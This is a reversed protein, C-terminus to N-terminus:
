AESSCTRRARYEYKGNWIQNLTALMGTGDEDLIHWRSLDITQTGNNRLEVWEGLIGVSDSGSTGCQVM